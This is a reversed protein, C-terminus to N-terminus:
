SSVLRYQWIFGQRARVKRCIIDLGNARLESVAASVSMIDTNFVIDRTSRWNGGQLFRKLRQLRESKDLSANNM